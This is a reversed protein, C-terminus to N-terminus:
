GELFRQLYCCVGWLECASLGALDPVVGLGQVRVALFQLRELWCENAM